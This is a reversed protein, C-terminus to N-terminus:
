CKLEKAFLTGVAAVTACKRFTNKTVLQGPRQEMVMCRAPPSRADLAAKAGVKVKAGAKQGKSGVSGAASPKAKVGPAKEKEAGGGLMYRLHTKVGDTNTWYM